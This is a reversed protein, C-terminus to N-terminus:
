CRGEFIEQSGEKGESPILMLEREGKWDKVLAAGELFISPHEGKM